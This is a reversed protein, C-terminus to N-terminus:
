WPGRIQPLNRPIISTLLTAEENEKSLKLQIDLRRISDREVLSLGPSPSLSSNNLDRYNIQFSEVNFALNVSDRKLPNGATQDWSFTVVEQADRLEDGDSDQWWFSVSNDRASTIERAENLERTLRELAIVADQRLNSRIQTSSFERLVVVFAFTIAGMLIAFLSIAITLEILTFGNKNM